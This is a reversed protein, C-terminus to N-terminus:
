IKGYGKEEETIHRVPVFLSRPDWKIEGRERPPIDLNSLELCSRLLCSGQM